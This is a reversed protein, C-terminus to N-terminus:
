EIEELTEICSKCLEYNKEPIHKIIDIWDFKGEGLCWPCEMYFTEKRGEFVLTIRGVGRCKKCVEEYDLLSIKEAKHYNYFERNM